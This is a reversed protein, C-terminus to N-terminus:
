RYGRRQKARLRNNLADLAQGVHRYHDHRLQGPQGIRGWERFLVWDGFLTPQVIMRYFRRKGNPSDICRLHAQHPFLDYQM